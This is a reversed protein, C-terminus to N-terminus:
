EFGYHDVSWIEADPPRRLVRTCGTTQRGTGGTGNRRAGSALPAAVRAILRGGATASCSVTAHCTLLTGVIASSGALGWGGKWQAPGREGDGRTALLAMRVVVIIATEAM